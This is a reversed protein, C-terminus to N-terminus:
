WSHSTKEYTNPLMPRPVLAKGEWLTKATSLQQPLPSISNWAGSLPAPAEEQLFGTSVWTIHSLPSSNRLMTKCTLNTLLWHTNRKRERPFRFTATALCSSYHERTQPRLRTCGHGHSPSSWTISCHLLSNAPKRPLRPCSPSIAQQNPPRLNSQPLSLWAGAEWM